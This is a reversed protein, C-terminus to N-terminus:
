PQIVAMAQRLPEWDVDVGAVPEGPTKLCVFGTGRASVKKDHRLVERLAREDPLAFSTPLGLKELLARVRRRLGPDLGILRESLALAVLLGLGVAQGHPLAGYGALTELAHGVTHGLNLVARLGSEREDMQVVAAKYRVCREIVPDLAEPDGERLLEAQEELRGLLHDGVLLAYKVVEGLGNVLEQRPLTALMEPDVVVIDPQYFSGVLNKGVALNVAVKGGISSDVQALLSTPVQWLGTGRLYTAAVFGALDGVVGGGVVIVLDDRRMGERALWDWVDAATQVSKSNEGAAMVYPRSEGTLPQLLGRLRRGWLRWVGDDTVIRARRGRGAERNSLRSLEARSGSGGMVLSPRSVATLRLGWAAAPEGQGLGPDIGPPLGRREGSLAPPDLLGVIQDALSEATAGDAPVVVDACAAYLAGRARALALFTQRDSALPRERRQGTGSSKDGSVREWCIEPSLHLHVVFAAEALLARVRPMTVAGGGLALVFDGPPDEFLSCLARSEAARFGEEAGRAFLEPISFGTQQEILRDLDQFRRDLRDALLQGVTSKGSGMFGTLALIRAM